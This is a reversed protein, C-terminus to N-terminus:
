GGWEHQLASMHGSGDDNRGHKAGGVELPEIGPTPGVIRGLTVPKARMQRQEMM